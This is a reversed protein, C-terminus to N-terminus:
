SGVLLMCPSSQPVQCLYLLTQRTLGWHFFTHKIRSLSSAGPFPSAEHRPIVRKLSLPFLPHPVTPPPVSFCPCHSSHFYVFYYFLFSLFHRLFPFQLTPEAILLVLHMKLSVTNLEWKAEWLWSYHSRIDEESRWANMCGKYGNYTFSLIFLYTFLHRLIM